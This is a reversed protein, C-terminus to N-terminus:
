DGGGLDRWFEWGQAEMQQHKRRAFEDLEGRSLVGPWVEQGTEEDYLSICSNPCNWAAFLIDEPSDGETDRVACRREEDIYFTGGAEEQCLGDGVCLEQDIVIRYRSM